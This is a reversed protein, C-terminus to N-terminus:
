SYLTRYKGAPLGTEKKFIRCFYNYDSFGAEMAVQSVTLDTQTLLEKAKELRLKKIYSAIGM